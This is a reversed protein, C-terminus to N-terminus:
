EQHFPRWPAAAVGDFGVGAGRWRLSAVAAQGRGGLAVGTVGTGRVDVDFTAAASM